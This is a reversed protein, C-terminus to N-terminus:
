LDPYVKMGCGLIGGHPCHDLIKFEIENIWKTLYKPYKRLISVMKLNNEGKLCQNYLYAILDAIQIGYSTTSDAFAITDLVRDIKIYAGYRNYQNSALGPYIAKLKRDQRGVDMILWGYANDEDEAQERGKKELFKQIREILFIFTKYEIEERSNTLRKLNNYASVIAVAEYREIMDLLEMIFNDILKIREEQNAPLFRSYPYKYNFLESARLEKIDGFYRLALKKFDNYFLSIYNVEFGVTALIYFPNEKIADDTIAAQGSDDVYFMYPM